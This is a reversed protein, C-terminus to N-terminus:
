VVITDTLITKSKSTHRSYAIINRIWKVNNLGLVQVIFLLYDKYNKIERSCTEIEVNGDDSLNHELSYLSLFNQHLHAHTPSSYLLIM